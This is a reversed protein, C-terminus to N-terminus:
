RIAGPASTLAARRAAERGQGAQPFITACLDVIEAMECWLLLLRMLAVDAPTRAEGALETILMREYERDGSAHYGALLAGQRRLRERRTM